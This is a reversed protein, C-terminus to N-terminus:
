KLIVECIIEFSKVIEDRNNFICAGYCVCAIFNIPSNIMLSADKCHHLKLAGMSTPNCSMTTIEVNDSKLKNLIDEAVLQLVIIFINPAINDVKRTGCGNKIIIEEKKLKLVAKLDSSLNEIWEIHKPPAVIKLLTRSIVDHAVSDCVKVLDIFM